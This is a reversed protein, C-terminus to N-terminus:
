EEAMFPYRYDRPPVFNEKVTRPSIWRILNWRSGAKDNTGSARGGGFPQQGVVAGTPKDNMYFNGAAFRLVKKAEVLAERGKAFIAGTLGYPSGETVSHLTQQYNADEYVYVTLIPGFLEERMTRYNPDKVVIVTPKVFWGVSDDYEGGIVEAVAEHGKAEDIAAKHKAFAREDIVAGMFNRFDRVDGVSIEGMAKAMGDRVESWMSKPIFARSAASCKQGQYEFSGRFLAVVVEEPTASPHVFVFDKGGTEGVVRPYAKYNSINAGIQGILHQFTPTSGTFHLGALRPDHIIKNGITPADGQVLNIVGPPLGADELLNMVYHAGLMANPAPKWIVTNGCMAPATPLNGAIATFNFPTVAFVFGDLPRYELRNWIGPSSTPQDAYIETLYKVNFNLFDILEAASDIEAQHATKSQNLMTAANLQYRMREQALGAARLFISAREEWPMAMWGDRANECAELAADVEAEGGQHVHGLVHAHKHPMVAPLTKGTEVAKGNIRLPINVTTDSQRALEAKLAAREPSGPAYSRVPENVTPPVQSIGFSM